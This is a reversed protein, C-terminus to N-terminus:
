TPNEYKGLALGLQLVLALTPCKICQETCSGAPIDSGLYSNRENIFVYIKLSHGILRRM